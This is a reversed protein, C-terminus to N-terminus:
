PRILCAPARTPTTTPATPSALVHQPLCSVSCADVCVSAFGSTTTSQLTTYHTALAPPMMPERPPLLCAAETDPTAARKAQSAVIPQLPRGHPQWQWWGGGDDAEEQGLPRSRNGNSYVPCQVQVGPFRELDRDLTRVHHRETQFRMM